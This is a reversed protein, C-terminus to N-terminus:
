MSKYPRYEYFNIDVFYPNSGILLNTFSFFLWTAFAISFFTFITKKLVFYSAVYTMLLIAAIISQSIASAVDFGAQDVVVGLGLPIILAAILHFAYSVLGHKEEKNFLVGVMYSVIGFGLTVLIRTFANFTDWNQGILVAVGIFVIFGGTMYLVESIGLERTLPNTKSSKGNDFAGIIEDKTILNQSSM